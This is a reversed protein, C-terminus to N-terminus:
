STDKHKICDTAPNTPEKNIMGATLSQVLYIDLISVQNKSPGPVKIEALMGCVLFISTWIPWLGVIHFSLNPSSWM